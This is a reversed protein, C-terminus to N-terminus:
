TARPGEKGGARAGINCVVFRTKGHPTREISAEERAAVVVGEGLTEKICRVMWDREELHDATRPVYRLVARDRTDQVIQYQAIERLERFLCPFRIAPVREGACNVLFEQVRGDISELVELGRGCACRESSLAGMDGIAYRIFPMVRNDLDTVVLRGVKDRVSKGDDDVVEVVVHESSVHMRGRECEYAMGGVENSGYCDRVESRFVERLLARQFEFLKEGTSFVVPICLDRIHQEKATEALDVLVSAFSSISKPRIQRLTRLTEGAKGVGGFAVLPVLNMLRQRAAGLVSVHTAGVLAGRDGIRVGGWSRGRLWAAEAWVQSESDKLFRLPSGTSGGTARREFRRWRYGSAQFEEANERIRDRETVPFSALESIHKFAESKEKFRESADRYRPVRGAAFRLLQSLKRVQLAELREASYWQSDLMSSFASMVRRGDPFRYVPYVFWKYFANVRDNMESRRM